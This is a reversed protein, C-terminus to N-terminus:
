MSESDPNEPASLQRLMDVDDLARELRDADLSESHGSVVPPFTSSRPREMLFAALVLLSALALSLAPRLSWGSSGTWFSRGVKQWWPTSSDEAAIRQYLRRDFDLSIPAAEWQGLATWVAQQGAVWNSCAPCIAIHGELATKTRPDLREACYDMLLSMQPHNEFPCEM